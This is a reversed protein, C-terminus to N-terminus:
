EPLHIRVVDGVSLNATKIASQHNRVLMIEEDATPFMVWEGEPVDGYSEGYFVSWSDGGSEVEYSEGQHIGAATLEGPHFGLFANGYFVNVATVQNRIAHDEKVTGTERPPVERSGSTLVPAVGGRIAAAMDQVADWREVWNVNVHGPRLLPRLAPSFGHDAAVAVYGADDGIETINTMLIAPLQPRATLFSDKTEDALDIFPGLAIVGDALDADQEAIRLVLTGATSEGELVLMEIAGREAEIWARLDRLAVTHADHDVGNEQFATRGILWGSELLRQYFRNTLDLDALHPAHAPRWGHVHFFAKGGSWGAPAAVTYPAGDIEGEWLETEAHLAPGM